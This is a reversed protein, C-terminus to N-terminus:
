LNTSPSNHKLGLFQKALSDSSAAGMARPRHINQSSLPTKNPLFAGFAHNTYNLGAKQLWDQFGSPHPFQTAVPLSISSNVVSTLPQWTNGVQWSWGSQSEVAVSPFSALKGRQENLEKLPVNPVKFSSVDVERYTQTDISAGLSLHLGEDKMSIGSVFVKGPQFQLVEYAQNQAGSISDLSVADSPKRKGGPSTVLEFAERADEHQNRVHPLRWTDSFSTFHHSPRFSTGEIMEPQCDSERQWEMRTFGVPIAQDKDLNQQMTPNSLRAKEWDQESFPYGIEELQQGMQPNGENALSVGLNLQLNWQNIGNRQVESQHIEKEYTSPDFNTVAERGNCRIAARDYARAAEVESDFLGLYIYKKGLFQGMRAEWRGCKHLTVGRFKSSGRSFGTSQRRLIHVFEEKKLAGMQKIDEEYDNLCFNIDADLGRFKIAAKDYARAAAHATDFGGLYVQKGTDWIHSEWRGTRRYFTVGRYESSRSRPGRRSKKPPAPNAEVPRPRSGCLETQCLNLGVLHSGAFTLSSKEANDPCLFSSASPQLPFLERTVFATSEECKERGDSITDTSAVSSAVGTGGSPTILSFQFMKCSEEGSDPSSAVLVSCNAHIDKSVCAEGLWKEAEATAESSAECECGGCTNPYVAVNLVASSSTGSDVQSIEVKSPSVPDRGTASCDAIKLSPNDCEGGQTSTGESTGTQDRMFPEVSSSEKNCEKSFFKVQVKQMAEPESNLDFM